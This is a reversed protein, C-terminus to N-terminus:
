AVRERGRGVLGWMAPLLLAGCWFVPTVSGELPGGRLLRWLADLGGLLLLAHVGGLLAAGLWTPRRAWAVAICAAALVVGGILAVFLAAVVGIQFPIERAHIWKEETPDLVYSGFWSM